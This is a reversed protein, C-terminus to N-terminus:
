GSETWLWAASLSIFDVIVLKVLNELRYPCGVAPLASPRQGLVRRKVIIGLTAWHGSSGDDGTQRRDIVMWWMSIGEFWSTGQRAVRETNTIRSGREPREMTLAKREAAIWM